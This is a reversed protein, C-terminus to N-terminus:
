GSIPLSELRRIERRCIWLPIMGFVGFSTDVLRWFIPIGRLAGFLLAWPVVLICAIMGFEIVWRNRVPDRLPGFFAVAIAIHGFALWDTGLALFPYRTYSDELGFFVRAVWYALGPWAAALPQWNVIQNLLRLEWQLPVATLGSVILAAMFFLILLRIRRLNSGKEM